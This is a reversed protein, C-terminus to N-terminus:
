KESCTSANSAWATHNRTAEARLLEQSRNHLLAMPVPYRVSCSDFIGIVDCPNALILHFSQFDRHERAANLVVVCVLIELYAFFDTCSMCQLSSVAVDFNSMELKRETVVYGAVSAENGSLNWLLSPFFPWTETKGPFLVSSGFCITDVHKIPIMLATNKCKCIWIRKWITAPARVFSSKPLAGTSPGACM